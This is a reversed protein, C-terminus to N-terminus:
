DTDAIAAVMDSARVMNAVAEYDLGQRRAQRRGVHVEAATAAASLLLHRALYRWHRTAIKDKPMVRGAYTFCLVGLDGQKSIPMRFCYPCVRQTALHRVTVHNGQCQPCHTICFKSATGTLPRTVKVPIDRVVEQAPPENM